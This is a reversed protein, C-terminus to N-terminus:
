LVLVGMARQSTFQQSAGSSRLAQAANRKIVQYAAALTEPAIHRSQAIAHTIITDYVGLMRLQDELCAPSRDKRSGIYSYDGYRTFDTGILCATVFGANVPSTNAYDTVFYYTLWVAYADRLTERDLPSGDPFKDPLRSITEEVMHVFQAHERQAQASPKKKGFIGM